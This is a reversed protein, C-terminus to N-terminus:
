GNDAVNARLPLDIDVVIPKNYKKGGSGKHPWSSAMIAANIICTEQRGLRGFLAEIDYRGSPTQGGRGWTDQTEVPSLISGLDPHQGSVTIRVDHENVLPSIEEKLGANCLALGSKFTLDLLSQKNNSQGPDDWRVVSEEKYKVNSMGLDWRVIEAGRGEHIHGCIALQPRVRWLAQRLADCGAAGKGRAEDCHYQPPTHTLVVDTDLPIQDWLASAQEPPYGFAWLGKAPSYPSGFVKFSCQHGDPAPLRITAAEHNLYTISPSAKFLNFCESPDQPHQNHFYCGNEAYFHEDLTIDHNGALVVRMIKAEFDAKEIWDVTKRLESLSGQNSLDGAHVLVDGRPLKFSGNLPSANHTDSVCVFRVKRTAPITM